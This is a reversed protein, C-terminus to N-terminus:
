SRPSRRPTIACWGGDRRRACSSTPPAAAGRAHRRGSYVHEIASQMALGVTELMVVHELRFALKTDGTFIQEWATRV